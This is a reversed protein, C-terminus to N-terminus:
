ADRVRTEAIARYCLDLLPRTPWLEGFPVIWAVHLPCRRLLQLCADLGEYEAVLHGDRASYARLRVAQALEPLAETRLPSASFRQLLQVSEECGQCRTDYAITFVDADDPIYPRLRPLWRRVSDRYHSYPEGFRSSLEPAEYREFLAESLLVLELSYLLLHWSRYYGAAGAMAVVVGLQMPNRVFAYPGGQVLRQPPDYPLPTGAAVSFERVAWAAFILPLGIVALWTGRAWLSWDPLPWLSHGSWNLIKEPVYLCAISGFSVLYILARLSAGRPPTNAAIGNVPLARNSRLVARGLWATGLLLGGVLILDALLWWLGDGHVILSEIRQAGFADVTVAGIWWLLGHRWAASASSPLAVVFLVGCVLAWALHLDLPVGFVLGDTVVYRWLGLRAGIGDIVIGLVLQMGGAVIAARVLASSPRLLRVGIFTAAFCILLYLLRFLPVWAAPLVWDTM